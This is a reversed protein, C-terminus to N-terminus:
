SDAHKTHLRQHAAYRDPFPELPFNQQAGNNDQEINM